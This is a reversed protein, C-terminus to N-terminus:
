SLNELQYEIDKITNLIELIGDKVSEDVVTELFSNMIDRYASIVALRNNFKAFAINQDSVDSMIGYQVILREALTDINGQINSYLTELIEHENRDSTLLHWRHVSAYFVISTEIVSQVYSPMIVTSEVLNVKRTKIGKKNDEVIDLEKLHKVLDRISDM